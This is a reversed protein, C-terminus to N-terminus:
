QHESKGTFSPCMHLDKGTFFDHNPASTARGEWTTVIAIWFPILLTQSEVCSTHSNQTVAYVLKPFRTRITLTICMSILPVDLINHVATVGQFVRWKSETALVWIQKSQRVYQKCEIVLYDALFHALFKVQQMIFLHMKQKYVFRAFWEDSM